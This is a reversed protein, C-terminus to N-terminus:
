GDRFKPLVKSGFMRMSKEVQQPTLQGMNANLMLNPVGADKLEAIQEAVRAPTGALFAHEVM